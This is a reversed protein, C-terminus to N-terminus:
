RRGRLLSGYYAADSPSVDPSSSVSTNSPPVVTSVLAATMSSRHLYEAAEGADAENKFSPVYASASIFKTIEAQAAKPKGLYDKAYAMINRMLDESSSEFAKDIIREPNSVGVKSLAEVLATKVPNTKNAVVNKNIAVASLCLADFYNKELSAIAQKHEQELQRKAQKIKRKILRDIKVAVVFPKAGFENMNFKNEAIVVSLARGLKATDAFLPKINESAFDRNLTMIPTNQEFVYALSEHVPVVTLTKKSLDGALALLNAQAAVKVGDGPNQIDAIPDNAPAPTNNVAPDAAPTDKGEKARKEKNKKVKRLKKRSSQAGPLKTEPQRKAVRSKDKNKNKRKKSSTIIPNAEDPGNYTSVENLEEDTNGNPENGLDTPTLDNGNIAGDESEPVMTMDDTDTIEVDHLNTACVPCYLKTRLKKDAAAAKNIYVDLDCGPCCVLKHAKKSLDKHSLTIVSATKVRALTSGTFPSYPYLSNTSIIQKHTDPCTYVCAEMSFKKSKAPAAVILPLTTM